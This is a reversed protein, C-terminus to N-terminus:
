HYYREGSHVETKIQHKKELVQLYKIIENVVKATKEIEELSDNIGKVV